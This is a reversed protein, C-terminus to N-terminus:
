VGDEKNTATAAGTRSLSVSYGSSKPVSLSLPFPPASLSLYLFFLLNLDLSLYSTYLFSFPFCSVYLSPPVNFFLTTFSHIALVSGSGFPVFSVLSLPVLAPHEDGCTDQERIGSRWAFPVPNSLSPLCSAAVPSEEPKGYRIIGQYTQISKSQDM